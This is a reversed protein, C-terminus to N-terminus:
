QAGVSFTGDDNLRDLYTNRRDEDVAIEAARDRMEAPLDDVSCGTWIRIGRSVEHRVGLDNLKRIVIEIDDTEFLRKLGM